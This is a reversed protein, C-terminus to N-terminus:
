FDAGLRLAISLANKLTPDTGPNITYQVDPQVTLWPLIKDQYTGEVQMEANQTGANAAKYKSANVNRYLALGMVGDPREPVFGGATVGIEWAHRYQEVDGAAIGLRGFLSVDKKDASYVSKDALVYIGRGHAADTATLQDARAATYYWGGVGFHGHADDKVGGEAVLLAGDKKGFRIHTGRAHAPDGSVGDFAGAQLYTSENPNVRLRAAVSTFPFISPGNDGTAAMVTSIGAAPNLFLGSTDTVYFETNLDHLGVLLSAKGGAFSQDVWLEHLHASREAVEINSIGGNSGALDANPRGGANTTFHAFLLLGDVGFAKGGDISAKLDLNDVYRAGRDKGGRLNSWGEAKYYINFDVGAAFL